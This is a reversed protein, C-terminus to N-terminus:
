HINEVVEYPFAPDYELLRKDALVVMGGSINKIEDDSLQAFM